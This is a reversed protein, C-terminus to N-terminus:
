ARGGRGRAPARAPVHVRLRAARRGARDRAVARAGLPRGRALVADHLRRAAAEVVAGHAHRSRPRRDGAGLHDVGMPRVDARRAPAPRAGGAGPVGPRAEAPRSWKRESPSRRGCARRAVGRADRAGRRPRGVLRAGPRPRRAPGRDRAGPRAGAARAAHPRGVPARAQRGPDRRRRRRRARAHGGRARVPRRRRPRRAPRLAARPHLRPDRPARARARLAAHAVLRGRRHLRRGAIRGAGGVAPLGRRHPAAGGPLDAPVGDEWRPAAAAVADELAPGALTLLFALWTAQERDPETAVAEYRAPRSSGRRRRSCRRASGSRTPPPGCARARAPQPLRRGRRARAPPHRRRRPPGPERERRAPRAGAPAKRVSAPRPPAKAKLEAELERSCIPCNATLRNHRCFLSVM